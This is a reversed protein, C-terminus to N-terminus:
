KGLAVAMALTNRLMFAGYDNVLRVLEEAGGASWDVSKELKRAFSTNSYEPPHNESPEVGLLAAYEAALSIVHNGEQM